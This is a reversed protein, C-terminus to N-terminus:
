LRYLGRIRLPKDFELVEHGMWGANHYEPLKPMIKRLLTATETLMSAYSKYSDGNWCAGAVEGIRGLYEPLHQWTTAMYGFAGINEAAAGLSEFNKNEDWPCLLTDFGAQMFHETTPVHPEKISYQWDAIVIRKDLKPLVEHTRQDPRSCAINPSLWVTADLLQDGWIIPRRGLKSLEETLGNLYDSLMVRSDKSACLPCTAYSYSEDCGLHFYHGEGCLEILERRMARLLELTDPNSLCWTWGDPEFLLAKKPSQDLIVHKGYCARSQAAHGLHNLMPIPEMGLNRILNILPRIEDKTYSQNPWSLEPMVEYKLSGWFELVVHTFKMIGALRIAKELLLLTTEPFVCLHIARMGKIAPHDHIEAEPLAGVFVDETSVPVILQLLSLLAHWLGIANIGRMFAGKGTISLAYEDEDHLAPCTTGTANLVACNADLTDDSVITLIGMRLAFRNWLGQYEAIMGDTLAAHIRLVAKEGIHLEGTSAAVSAPRPIVNRLIM